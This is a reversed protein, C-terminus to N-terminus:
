IVAIGAVEHKYKLYLTSKQLYLRFDLPVERIAKDKSAELDSNTFAQGINAGMSSLGGILLVAIYKNDIVLKTWDYLTAKM